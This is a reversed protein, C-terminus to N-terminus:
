KAMAVNCKVGSINEVNIKKAAVSVNAAAMAAMIEKKAMSKVIRWKAM